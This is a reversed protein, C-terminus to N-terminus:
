SYAYLRCMQNSAHMGGGKLLDEQELWQAAAQLEAMRPHRFLINSPGTVNEFFACATCM